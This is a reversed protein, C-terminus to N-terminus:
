AVQAWYPQGHAFRRVIRGAAVDRRVRALRASLALDREFLVIGDIAAEAWIGAVTIEPPPLHVFHADVPRGSWLPRKEDFRRYLERTLEVRDQVTILLDLDSGAFAEGRAWSGIAAVALLDAGFLAAAVAVAEAADRSPLAPASLKRVCLENLSIDQERATAQLLAHLPPDLRLVFRGSARVARV